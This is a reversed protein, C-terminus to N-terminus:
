RGQGAVVTDRSPTYHVKNNPLPDAEGPAIVKEREREAESEDYELPSYSADQARASQVGDPALLAILLVFLVYGASTKM